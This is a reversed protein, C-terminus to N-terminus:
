ASISDILRQYESELRLWAPERSVRKRAEAWAREFRTRATRLAASQPAPIPAASITSGTLAGIALLGARVAASKDVSHTECYAELEAWEDADMRVRLMHDAVKGTRPQVGAPSVLEINRRRDALQRALEIGADTLTYLLRRGDRKSTALGRAELRRWADGQLANPGEATQTALAAILTDRQTETLRVNM